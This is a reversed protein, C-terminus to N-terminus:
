AERVIETITAVVDAPLSYGVKTVDGAVPSLIFPDSGIFQRPGWGDATGVNVWGVDFLQDPTGAVSGVRAPTTTLDVALGILGQVSFQGTGSLGTHSTGHISAFPVIQRQILTVMQLISQLLGAAIPDPPCCATTPQGPLGNCTVTINGSWSNTPAGGARSDTQQALVYVATAPVAIGQKSTVGPGASVSLQTGTTTGSANIFTILANLSVLHAGGSSVSVSCDLWNAGAPLPQALFHAANDATSTAIFQSGTQWQPTFAPAAPIPTSPLNVVLCSGVTPQTTVGPPNIDPSGAPATSPLTIVPAPGSTCQCLANWVGIATLQKLKRMPAPDPNSDGFLVIAVMDAGTLGPDAPPDITCFDPLYTSFTQATLQLFPELWLLEPALTAVLVATGITVTDAVGAKPESAGSTCISM